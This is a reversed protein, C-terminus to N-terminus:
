KKIATPPTSVKAPDFSSMGRRVRQPTTLRASWWDFRSVPCRPLSPQHSLAVTNREVCLANFRRTKGIVDSLVCLRFDARLMCFSMPKSLNRLRHASHTCCHFLCMFLCMFLCCTGCSCLLMLMLVAAHEHNCPRTSTYHPAYNPAYNSSTPTTQTPTHNGNKSYHKSPKSANFNLPSSPKTNINTIGPPIGTHANAHCKPQASNLASTKLKKRISPM